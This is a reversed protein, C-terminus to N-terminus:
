TLHLVTSYERAGHVGDNDIVLNGDIYLRSGDDSNIFFTYDGEVDARISGTWRAAFYDYLGLGSMGDGDSFSVQSDTRTHTPTATFDIESLNNITHGINWYEGKLGSTAFPVLENTDTNTLLIDDFGLGLTALEESFTATYTLDGPPVIDGNTLSSSIVTPPIHDVSATSGSVTLLYAGKTGNEARVEIRYIGGQAATYEIRANRGDPSSETYDSSPIVSDDPAYLTLAANLTNQPEGDGDGPTTTEIVLNDGLNVIFTFADLDGVNFNVVRSREQASMGRLADLEMNALQEARTVATPQNGAQSAFHMIIKTEGPALSLTYNYNINDGSRTFTAPRIQANDGAVVHTVVPDSGSTGPNSDDTVLWNDNVTVTSDGSSTMIYRESGDSGLNTYIPLTYNVSSSGPNHIIELFRAFSQDSPVFIKRTISLGDITAPGIIIERGSEETLATSFNPFGSLYMGGDYADSTGNNINGDSRIDWLYGSADYLNVGLGTSGSPGSGLD